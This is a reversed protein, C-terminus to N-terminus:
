FTFPVEAITDDWGIYMIAGGGNKAFQISLNEITKDTKRAPVKVRLVDNKENYSYAGWYDVDSNFILTWESEGPITFLSYTGAKLQSGAVTADKYVKIETNENAGTRWVKGYPLLKGFVQRGNKAPRSYIVRVLAEESGKRDHAFNDPYYAMDMPSKDNGRFDQATAINVTAAALMCILIVKKM